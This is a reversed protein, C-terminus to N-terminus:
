QCMRTQCAPKMKLCSTSRTHCQHCSSSSCILLPPSTRLALCIRCLYPHSQHQHCSFSSASSTATPPLRNYRESFLASHAAIPEHPTKSWSQDVHVQLRLWPQLLKQHRQCVLTLPILHHQTTKKIKIKKALSILLMFKPILPCTACKLEHLMSHYLSNSVSSKSEEPLIQYNEM